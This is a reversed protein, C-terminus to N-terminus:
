SHPIVLDAGLEADLMAKGCGPVQLGVVHDLPEVGTNLLHQLRVM